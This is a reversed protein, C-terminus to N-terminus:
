LTTVHCVAKWPEYRAVCSINLYKEEVCCSKVVYPIGLIDVDSHVEPCGSVTIERTEGYSSGCRVNEKSLM